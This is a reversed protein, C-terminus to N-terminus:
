RSFVLRFAKLGDFKELESPSPPPTHCKPLPQLYDTTMNIDSTEAASQDMKEADSDVTVSIPDLNINSLLQRRNQVIKIYELNLSDVPIFSVCLLLEPYAVM